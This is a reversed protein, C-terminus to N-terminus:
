HIPGPIERVLKLATLGDFSPLNYDALIVDPTQEELERLFDERTDVRRVTFDVQAKRLEYRVLEADSDVDELMLIDLKKAVTGAGSPNHQLFKLAIKVQATPM